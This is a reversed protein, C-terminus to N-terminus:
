CATARQGTGAATRHAGLSNDDITGDDRVQALAAMSGRNSRDFISTSPRPYGCPWRRSSCSLRWGFSIGGLILVFLVVIGWVRYLKRFREAWGTRDGAPGMEPRFHTVIRIVIIYLVISILGPITGAAFLEAIGEETLIGYIILAASPPNRASAIQSNDVIHAFAIRLGTRSVRRRQRKM